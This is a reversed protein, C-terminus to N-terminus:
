SIRSHKCRALPEVTHGSTREDVLKSALPERAESLKFSLVLVVYYDANIAIMENSSKAERKLKFFNANLFDSPFRDSCESLHRGM